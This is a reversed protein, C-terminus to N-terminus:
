CPPYFTAPGIFSSIVMSLVIPHPVIFSSMVIFLVIYCPWHIVVNAHHTGHLLTLSHRCLWPCYLTAPDICSSMVMSLVIPLLDIVSSMVMFLVIYCPWHMVVYGHVTCYSCPWHIVVNGHVTCHLLTLSHRCLWSCYLTAPDIFSSIVMSLVIYWPWHIVVYGHVTYHLLTLSHEYDWIVGHCSSFLDSISNWWPCFSDSAKM